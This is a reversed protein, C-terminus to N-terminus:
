SNVFYSSIEKGLNKVFIKKNPRITFDNPHDDLCKKTSESINVCGSTGNSEMKNAIVVDVGYIDYRVIKKGVVGGIINGKFFLLYLSVTHIGIRMNLDINLKERVDDIIEIMKLGLNITSKAEEHSSRRKLKDMFSMVVYCDGITYLKYLGLKDCEIDFKNFLRSLM